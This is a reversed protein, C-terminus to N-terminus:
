KNLIIDHYNEIYYDALAQIEEKESCSLEDMVACVRMGARNGALVGMYVDEFVLCAEPEVGLCSSAKLYIDPAPKGKPHDTATLIVDFYSTINLAKLVIETLYQSNSTCIATKIGAEKLYKLFSLAGPKLPVQSQYKELAMQNWVEMMEEVSEPLSPFMEKFCHATELFSKGSIKRQLEPTSKLKYKGLYEQDIEKWVWMSDILTGDMDFLVANVNNLM